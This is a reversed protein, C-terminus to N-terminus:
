MYQQHLQSRFLRCKAANLGSVPHSTHTMATFISCLTWVGYRDALAIIPRSKLRASWLQTSTLEVPSAAPQLDCRFLFCMRDNLSCRFHILFPAIIWLVSTYFHVRVGDHATQKPMICEWYIVLLYAQLGTIWYYYHRRVNSDKHLMTYGLTTGKGM